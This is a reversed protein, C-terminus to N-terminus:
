ICKIKLEHALSILEFDTLNGLAGRKGQKRLRIEIIVQNILEM